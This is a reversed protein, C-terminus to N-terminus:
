LKVERLMAEQYARKQEDTLQQALVKELVPGLTRLSERQVEAVVTEREIAIQREAEEVRRAADEVAERRATQVIEEAQSKAAEVRERAERDSTEQLSRIRKRTAVVDGRAKEAADLADQIGEERKELAQFLPKWLFKALALAVIGFAIWTLGMMQPKVNLMEDAVNSEAGIPQGETVPAAAAAGEVPM